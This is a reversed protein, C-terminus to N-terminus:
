ARHPSKESGLGERLATIAKKFKNGREEFNQFMDWSACAPSLLVADGPNSAFFAQSVADELSPVIAVEQFGQELAMASLMSATEGLLVLRKVQLGKMKRLMPKFDSNKNYGGAILIKPQKIAQLAKLTADPNTGKSDNIFDVGGINAVHELRHPVGPFNKLVQAIKSVELGGLWAVATAALANELNHNGPIKVEDARCVSSSISGFNIVIKGEQLCIGPNLTEISSFPLLNGAVFPVFENVVKDDKNLVAWDGPRQNLLIKRKSATYNNENGHYDLHDPTINLVTAIQLRFRRINELQFSSLEAVILDGKAAQLVAEALPYGINGAVYVNPYQLKLMEGILSTTTTKGNTGTVGFLPAKSFLYALEIESYVPIGSSIAKKLLPLQPNIGPSKIIVNIDELINEPHGGAVIRVQPQELFVAMEKEVLNLEKYDNAIIIAAGAALLLKIAALGSKGLGLVLIKKGKMSTKM